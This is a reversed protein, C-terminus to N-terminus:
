NGEPAATGEAVPPQVLDSTTTSELMGESVVNDSPSAQVAEGSEVVTEGGYVVGQEMPLTESSMVTGMPVETGYTMQPATVMGGGCCSSVVPAAAQVPASVVPTSM